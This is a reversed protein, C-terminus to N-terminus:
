DVMLDIDDDMTSTAGTQPNEGQNITAVQPERGGTPAQEAAAGEGGNSGNGFYDAMEADLEEATKKPRGGVLPRGYPDARARGGRGGGRGERREGPRRGGERPTGRRRVPSRSGRARDGPVYRDVNDARPRGPSASRRRRGGRAPVEENSQIRDFLSRSPREVNDFPNRAPRPAGMPVLQLSIPQGYANAGDYERLAARADELYEYIIFATGQSRDQRDYLM